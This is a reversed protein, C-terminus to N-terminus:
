AGGTSLIETGAFGVGTIEADPVRAATLVVKGLEEGDGVLKLTEPALRAAPM